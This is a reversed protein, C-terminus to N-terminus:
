PKRLHFAVKRLFASLPNLVVGPEFNNM